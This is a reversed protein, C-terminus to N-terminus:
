IRMDAVEVGHDERVNQLAPLVETTSWGEQTGAGVLVAHLDLM